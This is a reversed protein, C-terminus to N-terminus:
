YRWMPLAVNAAGEVGDVILEAGGGISDIFNSLEREYPDVAAFPLREGNVLIEGEGRPGLTGTCSLSGESGFIEVVRPARFLVSSVVQATAGSQLRMSVVASEDHPGSFESNALVSKLEVIEGCDPRM